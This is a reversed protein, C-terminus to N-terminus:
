MSSFIRIRWLYSKIVAITNAKRNRENKWTRCRRRGTMTKSRRWTAMTTLTVKSAPSARGTEPATSFSAGVCAVAQGISTSASMNYEANQEEMEALALTELRKLEARQAEIDRLTDSLKSRLFQQNQQLEEITAVAHQRLKRVKDTCNEDGLLVAFNEAELLSQEIGKASVRLRHVATPRINAISVFLESFPPKVRESGPFSHQSRKLEEIWLNLEVAEARDRVKRRMTDPMTRKGYEYCALELLNQSYVFVKISHM